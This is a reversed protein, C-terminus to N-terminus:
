SQFGGGQKVEGIKLLNSFTIDVDASQGRNFFLIYSPPIESGFGEGKFMKNWSTFDITYSQESIVEERQLVFPVGSIDIAYKYSVNGGNLALDVSSYKYIGNLAVVSNPPLKFSTVNEISDADDFLERRLILDGGLLLNIFATIAAVRKFNADVEEITLPSGKESRLVVGLDSATPEPLITNDVSMIKM